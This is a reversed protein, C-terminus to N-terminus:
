NKKIALVIGAIWLLSQCMQKTLPTNPHIFMRRLGVATYDLYIKHYNRNNSHYWILINQKFLYM